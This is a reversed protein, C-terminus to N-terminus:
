YHVPPLRRFVHPAHPSPGLSHPHLFNAAHFLLPDAAAHATLINFVVIKLKKGEHEYWYWPQYQYFMWLQM